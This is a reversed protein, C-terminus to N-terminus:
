YKSYKKKREGVERGKSSAVELIKIGTIGHKGEGAALSRLRALSETERMWSNLFFFFPYTLSLKLLFCVNTDGLQRNQLCLAAHPVSWLDHTLKQVSHQRRSPRLWLSLRPKHAVRPSRCSFSGKRLLLQLEPAQWLAPAAPTFSCSHFRM